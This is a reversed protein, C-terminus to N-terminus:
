STLRRNSAPCVTSQVRALRLTHSNLTTSNHEREFSEFAHDVFDKSMGIGTDVVCMEMVCHGPEAATQKIDLKISGGEPTYKVANGIINLVTKSMLAPDTHVAGLPADCTFTYNLHKADLESRFVAEVRSNISAPEVATMEPVLKGNEIRAMDLVNNIIDLLYNGSLRINDVDHQFQEDDDRHKELLDAFGIIANMPTRIDHSMNFLFRTKAASSAEAAKKAVELEAHSQELKRKNKWLISVIIALAIMCVLMLIYISLFLQEYRNTLDDTQQLMENTCSKATSDINKKIRHYTTDFLIDRATARKQEATLAADEASLEVAKIEDPWQSKDLDTAECVLRMSRYETDMLHVSQSFALELDTYADTGAFYTALTNLANDRRKTVNAERFYNDMYTPNGTTAFLRAQDTLYDSAEQMQTGATQCTNHRDISENLVTYNTFGWAAIVIAFFVILYPALHGLAKSVPQKPETAMKVGGMFVVQM